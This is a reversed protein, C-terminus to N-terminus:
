PLVNAKKFGLKDDTFCFQFTRGKGLAKGEEPYYICTAPGKQPLKIGVRALEEANASSGLEDEVQQRTAGVEVSDFEELTIAQTEDDGGGTFAFCGGILVALVLVVGVAIKVGTKM